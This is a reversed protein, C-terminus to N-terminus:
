SCAVIHAPIKLQLFALPKYRITLQLATPSLSSLTLVFKVSFWFKKPLQSIRVEDARCQISL